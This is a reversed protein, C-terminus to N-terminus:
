GGSAIATIGVAIADYEDDLIKKDPVKILKQTMQMVQKKDSKGYGTIAIKIQGPTYEAVELSHAAATAIITGRVEAVKMATKQNINFYLTELALTTPHLTKILRDIEERIANLRESHPTKASTRFCDSHQLTENGTPGDLIAIGLREYGPDISLVRM